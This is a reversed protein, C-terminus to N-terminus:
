HRAFEDRLHTISGDIKGILSEIEDAIRSSSSSPQYADIAAAKQKIMAYKTYLRQISNKLKTERTKLKQREQKLKLEAEAIEFQLNNREIILRNERRLDEKTRKVEHQEEEEEEEKASVETDTATDSLISDTISSAFSMQDHEEAMLEDIERQIQEFRTTTSTIKEKVNAIQEDLAEMERAHIGNSALIQTNAAAIMHEGESEVNLMRRREFQVEDNMKRIQNETQLVVKKMHNVDARLLRPNAASAQWQVESVKEVKMAANRESTTLSTRCDTETLQNRLMKLKARLADIEIENESFHLSLSKPKTIAIEYQTFDFLDTVAKAEDSRYKREIEAEKIQQEFVACMAKAAHWNRVEESLESMSDGIQQSHAQSIQDRTEAKMVTLDGDSARNDHIRKAEQRLTEMKQTLSQIENELRDRKKELAMVDGKSYMEPSLSYDISSSYRSSVPTTFSNISDYKGSTIVAHDSTPTSVTDTSYSLM